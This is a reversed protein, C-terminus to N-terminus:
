SPLLCHILLTGHFCWCWRAPAVPTQCSFEQAEAGRATILSCTGLERIGIEANWMEVIVKCVVSGETWTGRTGM